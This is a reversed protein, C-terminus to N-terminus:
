VKGEFFKGDKPPFLFLLVLQPCSVTVLMYSVHAHLVLNLFM